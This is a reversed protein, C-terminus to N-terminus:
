SGGEGSGADALLHELDLVANLCQQVDRDLNIQRLSGSSAL